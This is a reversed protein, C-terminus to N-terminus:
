RSDSLTIGFCFPICSFAYLDSALVCTTPSGDRQLGSRGPVTCPYSSDMKKQEQPQFAGSHHGPTYSICQIKEIAPVNQGQTHCPFPWCGKQGCREQQGTDPLPLASTCKCGREVVKFDKAWVLLRICPLCAIFWM